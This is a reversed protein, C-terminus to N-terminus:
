LHGRIIAELEQEDALDHPRVTRDSAVFYFAASVSELEVKMLRSWALRYVALQVARQSLERPGPARGSKWDVLEWGGDPTTFVADIRGRVTVGALPTEFPYEIAWPQKDAWESRRFTTTLEPLRYGQDVFDDAAGVLHDLDFMTHAGFYREVWAHFTTGAQASVSPRRPMPRRLQALVATPDQGLEVVTSASVHTPTPLVTEQPPRRHAALLVRAEEVWQRVQPDQMLQHDQMNQHEPFGGNEVAHAVRTLHDRRGARAPALNVRQQQVPDSGTVETIAPGELPDYPWAAELMRSEAPNQQGEEVDVWERRQVTPLDGSQQYILGELEEVFVAPHRSTKSTGVFVTCSLGLFHRARTFAVYMLRRLEAHDHEAADELFFEMSNKLEQVDTTDVNWQPLHHHDGRLPWPVADANKTWASSQRSRAEHEANMGPVYVHDWELGKSAHITLIQVAGPDPTAQVIDLSEEEEAVALWDVFAAVDQSGTATAYNVALDHLADLNGRGEAGATGPRASVELDVELTREVVGLVTTLDEALWSRLGQLERAFLAMRERGIDSLTRGATSTWGAPPLTEIAEVLSAADASDPEPVANESAPEHQQPRDDVDELAVGLHAARTRRHELYGAWDGLAVMDRPGIRWRAGTLLRALADSRGPDTLVQLTALVDAVEPVSLLGGLGVVEHPIAQAALHRRIPEFQARRRCLVAMTPPEQGPPHDDLTVRISEAIAQAEDDDTLYRSVTVVGAEAGPRPQLDPVEQLGGASVAWPPPTRLPAAITNAAALISTDNRWATSLFGPASRQGAQAPFWEDFSFLQGASAGRFGYISQQPDGVAMVSHGQGFLSAFLVMQAHSTDQFEDLLVVPFRERELDRVHSDERAIRAAHSLLDGFDMAEQDRKLQSFRQVMRALIRTRELNEVTKKVQDGPSKTRGVPPVDRLQEICETAFQEIQEAGLLHEAAAASLHLVQRTLTTANFDGRVDGDWGEVLGRVMQWAQAQGLLLTEPEVGIRLGHDRVLTHAYSHYTMVTPELVTEPAAHQEPEHLLGKARLVSLRGRVRDRLEGAAKRTFTVGLVQDPRVIGNAVLWVVRDVMTATKGSGAGAVVLKPTLPASIVDAQQPTPRNGDLADAVDYPSVRAQVAGYPYGRRSSPTAPEQPSTSMM